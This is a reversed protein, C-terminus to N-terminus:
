PFGATELSFSCPHLILADTTLVMGMYLRKNRRDKFNGFLRISYQSFNSRFYLFLADYSLKYIIVDSSLILTGTIIGKSIRDFVTSYINIFIM